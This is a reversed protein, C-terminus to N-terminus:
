PRLFCNQRLKGLMSGDQPALGHAGHTHPREEKIRVADRNKKKKGAQRGRELEDAAERDKREQERREHEVQDKRQMSLLRMGRDCVTGRKEAIDLLSDLSAIIADLVRSDPISSGVQSDVIEEYAIPPFPPM